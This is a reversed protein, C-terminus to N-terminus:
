LLAFTVSNPGAALKTQSRVFNIIEDRLADCERTWVKRHCLMRVCPDLGRLEFDCPGDARLVLGSIERKLLEFFALEYADGAREAVEVLSVHFRPQGPAFHTAVEPYGIVELASRVGQVLQPLGIVTGTSETRLWDTIGQAVHEALWWHPYGAERAARGLARILWPPEFALVEGDELQILPLADCLAIM